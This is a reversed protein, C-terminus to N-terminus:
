PRCRAPLQTAPLPLIPITVNLDQITIKGTVICAYYQFWSGYSAAPIVKDLEPGWGKLQPEVTKENDNLMGALRRLEGIDDRLPPRADEVLDATARTLEGIGDISEGIPERDGALGTVLRQLTELLQNLEPSRNSVTGLVTNLNTIVQGIVKDRDALTNSLSATSALLQEVSPGEGQFVQIIQASLQNVDAPSLARFLPQFGNFLDTLNLAPRTHDLAITGGPALAPGASSPPGDLALYRQGILNRYRIVARVEAPLVRERDVTFGIAAFRDDRVQLTTVQGIKVGRMRVDDGQQLGSADTFVATYEHATTFSTNAVTAALIGTLLVTVVTFIALKVSPGLVSRM